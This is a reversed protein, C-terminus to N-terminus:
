VNGKAGKQYLVKLDVFRAAILTLLVVGYVTADLYSSKSLWILHVVALVAVGYVARHLYRWKLGLLRVM